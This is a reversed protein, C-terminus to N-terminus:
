RRVENGILRVVQEWSLLEGGLVGRLSDATRGTRFAVVHYDMPTRLSDSRLFVASTADFLSDPRLFDNVWVSGVRGDKIVTAVYMALCGVDDFPLIKGTATVLEGAFRADALTMHCHACQDTGLQLTRPGPVSCGAAAVLAALVTLRHAAPGFAM